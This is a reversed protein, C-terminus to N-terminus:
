HLAARLPLKEIINAEISLLQDLRQEIVPITFYLTALDIFLLHHKTESDAIQQYFNKMEPASHYRAILAFRECGRAEIIAATLLRDLMYKESGKRIHSRIANIYPDKKDSGLQLGQAQMLKIVERFHALEEISLDIMARILDPRDPYHSLMSIAMGSAKKEAQAHDNLFSNFDALITDVWAKSTVYRLKFLNPNINPMM